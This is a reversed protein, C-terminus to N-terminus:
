HVGRCQAWSLRGFCRHRFCDETRSNERRTASARSGNFPREGDCCIRRSYLRTHRSVEGQEAPLERHGTRSPSRLLRRKGGDIEPRRGHGAHRARGRHMRRPYRRSRCGQLRACAHATRAEKSRRLGREAPRAFSDNWRRPPYITVRLDQDRGRWSGEAEACLGPNGGAYRGERGQTLPEVATLIRPGPLVGKRSPM